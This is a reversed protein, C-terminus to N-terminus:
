APSRGFDALCHGVRDEFIEVREDEGIRRDILPLNTFEGGAGEEVGLAIRDKDAAGSGAFGMQPMATAEATMRVRALPRKKL